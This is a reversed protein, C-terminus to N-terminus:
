ATSDFQCWSCSSGWGIQCRTHVAQRPIHVWAPAYAKTTVGRHWRAQEDGVTSWLLFESISTLSASPVAKYGEPIPPPPDSDEEGECIQDGDVDQDDAHSDPLSAPVPFEPCVQALRVLSAALVRIYTTPKEGEAPPPKKVIVVQVNYLRIHDRTIENHRLFQGGSKKNAPNYHPNPAM